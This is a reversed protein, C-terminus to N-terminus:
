ANGTSDSSVGFIYSESFCLLSRRRWPAILGRRRVIATPEVRDISDDILNM